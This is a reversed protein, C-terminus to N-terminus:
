CVQLLVTAEASIKQALATHRPSTVNNAKTNTNNHDFLGAAFYPWLVRVASDDVKAASVEGSAVMAALADGMYKSGPMEQDLGRNMSASHTAGWDSMVFGVCVVVVSILVSQAQYADVTLRCGPAVGFGDLATCPAPVKSALGIKSTASYRTTIRM